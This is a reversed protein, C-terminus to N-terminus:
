SFEYTITQIFNIENSINPSIYYMQTAPFMVFNNNNLPIDWSRGARRNDDFYVRVWCSDKAMKVGYLFVFDPSNKLDVPDIQKLPMSSQKPVYIDGWTKKDIVQFKYKSHVHDKVYTNLMDWQKSFPFEKRFLTQSLIDKEIKERDIDWDKPMDIDGYYLAIESLVKKQM